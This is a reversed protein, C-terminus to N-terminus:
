RPRFNWSQISRCAILRHLQHRRKGKERKSLRRRIAKVPLAVRGVTGRYALAGSEVGVLGEPVLAFEDRRQEIRGGVRKYVVTSEYRHLWRKHKPNLGRPKEAEPSQMKTFAMADRFRGLLSDTEAGRVVDRRGYAIFGLAYYLVCPPKFVTLIKVSACTRFTARM